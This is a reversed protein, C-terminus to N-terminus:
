CAFIRWHIMIGLLFFYNQLRLDSNLETVRHTHTHTHTHTDCTQTEQAGQTQHGERVDQLVEAQEAGTVAYAEGLDTGDEDADPQCGSAENM